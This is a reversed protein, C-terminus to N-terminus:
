AGPLGFVIVTGVISSTYLNDGERAEAYFDPAPGADEATM